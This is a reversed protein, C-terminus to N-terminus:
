TGVQPNQKPEVGYAALVEKIVAAADVKRNGSTDAAQEAETKQDADMLRSLVTTFNNMAEVARVQIGPPTENSVARAAVVSLAKVMDAGFDGIQALLADKFQAFRILRRRPGNRQVYLQVSRRKCDPLSLERMIDAAQWGEDMLEHLRAWSAEGIGKAWLPMESQPDHISSQPNDTEPNMQTIQPDFRWHQTESSLTRL